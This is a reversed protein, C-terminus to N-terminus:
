SNYNFVPKVIFESLDRHFVCFRISPFYDNQIKSDIHNYSPDNTHSQLLKKVIVTLFVQDAYFHYYYRCIKSVLKSIQNLPYNRKRILTISVTAFGLSAAIHGRWCYSQVILAIDMQYIIQLYLKAHVMTWAVPSHVKPQRPRMSTYVRTRM